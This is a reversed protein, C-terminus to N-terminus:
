VDVHAFRAAGVEEDCCMIRADGGLAYGDDGLLCFFFVCRTMGSYSDLVFM